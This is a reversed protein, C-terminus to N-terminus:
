EPTFCVELSKCWSDVGLKVGLIYLGLVIEVRWLFFSANLVNLCCRVGLSDWFCLHQGELDGLTSDILLLDASSLFLIKLWRRGQTRTTSGFTLTPLFRSEVNFLYNTLAKLPRTYPVWVWKWFGAGAAEVDWKWAIPQWILYRSDSPDVSQRRTESVFAAIIFIFWM